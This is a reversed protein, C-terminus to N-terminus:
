YIVYGATIEYCITIIEWLVLELLFADCTIESSILGPTCVRSLNSGDFDKDITCLPTKSSSVIGWLVLEQFSANCTGRFIVGLTDVRSLSINKVTPELLTFLNYDSFFLKIIDTPM